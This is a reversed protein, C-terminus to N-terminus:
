VEFGTVVSRVVQPPRRLSVDGVELEAGALLVLLESGHSVRDGADDVPTISPPGSRSERKRSRISSSRVAILLRKM